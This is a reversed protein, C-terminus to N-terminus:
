RTIAIRVVDVMSGGLAEVSRVVQGAAEALHRARTSNDHAEHSVVAIRGAVEQAALITEDVNRRIEATSVSQQEVAAAIASSVAEVDRIALAIDQVAGVATGTAAQIDGIQRTIERTAHATQNALNKVEDAVVTFGKGAEGARAAEVTANLALLNTQKAITAIMRTVEGIRDVSHALRSIIEEAGNAATVARGTISTATSVQHSIEAIAGSLRESVASVSQVNTLAQAAAAVVGQANVGVLEASAAMDRTSDAMRGTEEAVFAVAQSSEREVTEAMSQLAAQKETEVRHREEDQAARLQAAEVANQKFVAIAAAMTGIEDHNGVHSIDIMVDGDALRRMTRTIAGIPRVINVVLERGAALLGFGLGVALTLLLLKLETELERDLHDRLETVERQSDAALGEIVADLAVRNDRMGAGAGFTRAAEISHQRALRVVEDRYGIYAEVMREAASFGARREEPVSDRWQVLRAHLREMNASLSAAHGEAEATTRSLYIGRADVTGALTLGYVQEALVASASAREMAQAVRAYSRLSNAATAALALSVAALTLVVCLM